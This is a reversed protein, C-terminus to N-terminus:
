PEVKIEVQKMNHMDRATVHYIVHYVGPEHFKEMFQYIGDGKNEADVMDHKEQGEQWIEFQVEGADDVHEDAQTVLVQLTTIEGAKAKEPMFSFEVEIPALPDTPEEEGACASLLVVMLLLPFFWKKMM